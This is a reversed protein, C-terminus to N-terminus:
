LAATVALVFWPSIRQCSSSEDFQPLPTILRVMYTCSYDEPVKGLSGQGQTKTQLLWNLLTSGSVIFFLLFFGSCCM